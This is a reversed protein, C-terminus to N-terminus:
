LVMFTIMVLICYICDFAFIATISYIYDFTFMVMFSYIYGPIQECFVM